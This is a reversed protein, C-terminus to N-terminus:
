RGDARSSALCHGGRKRRVEDMADQLKFKRRLLQELQPNPTTEEQVIMEPASDIFRRLAQQRLALAQIRERIAELKVEQERLRKDVSAPDQPNLGPYQKELNMKRTEAERLQAESRAAQDEFFKTVGALQGEFSESAEEQTVHELMADVATQQHPRLTITVPKTQVSSLIAHFFPDHSGM